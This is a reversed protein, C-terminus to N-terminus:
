CLCCRAAALLRSRILSLVLLIFLTLSVCCIWVNYTNDRPRALYCTQMGGLKCCCRFGSCCYGDDGFCVDIVVNAADVVVVV